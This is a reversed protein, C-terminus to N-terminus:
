NYFCIIQCMCPLVLTYVCVSIVSYDCYYTCAPLDGRGLDLLASVLTITTPKGKAQAAKLLPDNVKMLLRGKNVWNLATVEPDESFHSIRVAKGDVPTASKTQASLLLSVIHSCDTILDSVRPIIGSYSMVVSDSVELIALFRAEAAKVEEAAAAEAAKRATANFYSM